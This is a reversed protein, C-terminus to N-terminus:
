REGRERGREAKHAAEVLRYVAKATAFEDRNCAEITDKCLARLGAIEGKLNQWKAELDREVQAVKLALGDIRATKAELNNFIDTLRAATMPQPGRRKGADKRTRKKAMFIRERDAISDTKKPQSASM